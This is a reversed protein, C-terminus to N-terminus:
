FNEPYDFHDGTMAVCYPHCAGYVDIVDGCEDCIDILGDAVLDTIDNSNIENIGM